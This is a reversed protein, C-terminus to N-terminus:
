TAAELIYGALQSNQNRYDFVTGPPAVQKRGLTLERMGIGEQFRANESQPGGETSLPSLGSAMSLTQRLTTRGRPDDKWEPIYKGVGDELSGISKDAIATGVLTAMVSKHMSASEARTDPGTGNWYREFVVRGKHWILLSYADYKENVAAAASFDPLTENAAARPLPKYDGKVLELPKRFSPADPATVARAPQAMAQPIIAHPTMLGLAAMLAGAALVQKM